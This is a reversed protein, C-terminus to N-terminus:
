AGEADARAPVEIDDEHLAHGARLERGHMVAARRRCDGIEDAPVDLHHDDADPEHCLGPLRPREFHEAEAARCPDSAIGVHRRERLAPQRAVLGSGPVPQGRGFASRGLDDGLEVRLRLANEVIVRKALFKERRVEDEGDHARRFRERLADPKFRRFPSLDDAVRVYLDLSYTAASTRTSNDARATERRWRRSTWRRM